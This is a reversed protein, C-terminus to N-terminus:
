QTLCWIYSQIIGVIGLHNCAFFASNLKPTKMPFPIVYKSQNAKARLFLGHKVFKSNALFVHPCHDGFLKLGFTEIHGTTLALLFPFVNGFVVTIRDIVTVEAVIM